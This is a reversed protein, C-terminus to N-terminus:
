CWIKINGIFHLRLRGMNPDASLYSGSNDENYFVRTPTKKSALFWKMKVGKFTDTFSKSIELSMTTNTDGHNKSIKVCQLIRASQYTQAATYHENQGFGFFEEIVMTMYTSFKDLFDRLGSYLYDRVEPPCYHIFITRAVMVVAAVSGITTVVKKGKHTTKTDGNSSSVM